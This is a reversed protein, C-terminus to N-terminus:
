ASRWPVVVDLRAGGERRNHVRVRGGVARARERITRLEKGDLVPQPFGEGDDEVVLRVSRALRELGIWVNDAEAHKMANHVGEQACRYLQEAVDEAVDVPRADIHVKMTGTTRAALRELAAHVGSDLDASRMMEVLGRLERYAAVVLEYGRGVAAQARDPEGSQQAVKLSLEAAFLLQCVADHVERALRDREERAAVREGERRQEALLHARELATGLQSAVADLLRLTDDDFTPTHASALNLIGLPAGGRGKLPVSAHVELGRTDGDSHGLRSCEVVNLGRDLEGRRFMGECWCSGNRLGACGEGELAPPLGVAAGIELGVFHADGVAHRALFVWATDIGLLDVLRVLACHLASAFDPERNLIEGISHLTTLEAVRRELENSSTASRDTAM